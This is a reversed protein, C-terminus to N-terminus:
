HADQTGFEFKTYDSCVVSFKASLVPMKWVRCMVVGCIPYKTIKNIQENYIHQMNKSEAEINSFILLLQGHVLLLMIMAANGNIM